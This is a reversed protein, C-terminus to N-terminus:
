SGEGIRMKVGPQFVDPSIRIGTAELKAMCKPRVGAAVYAGHVNGDSDITEQKFKYIEQMTIVEGEMGAIEAISTIRRTGDLLRSAQVFINIASAIQQRIVRMPIELGGMSVMTEIRSIADRPTNAHITTLSGEHGTNM